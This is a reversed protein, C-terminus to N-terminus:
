RVLNPGLLSTEGLEYWYLPSQCKRDYLAEYPAMGVSTHYNNNYSFETLPM